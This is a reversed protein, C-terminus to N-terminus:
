LNTIIMTTAIGNVFVRSKLSKTTSHEGFIIFLNVSFLLMQYNYHLSLLPNTILSMYVEDMGVDFVREEIDGVDKVNFQTLLTVLSSTSLAKVDLDDMVLYIAMSGKVYGVESPCFVKAANPPDTFWVIRDMKLSCSPCKTSNNDATYSSCISNPRTSMCNYLQGFTSAVNPLLLPLKAGPMFVKPQLLFGKYTNPQVHTYSLNEFSRYLSPLSGLMGGGEKLLRTVTGVPLTFISLLFDVFEKDTEAFLVRQRKKDIFLKLSVKTSAM